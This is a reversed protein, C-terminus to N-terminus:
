SRMGADQARDLNRIIEILPIRRWARATQTAAAATASPAPVACWRLRSCRNRWRRM